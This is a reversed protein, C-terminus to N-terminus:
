GARVYADIKDKKVIRIHFIKGSLAGSGFIIKISNIRNKSFFTLYGGKKQLTM